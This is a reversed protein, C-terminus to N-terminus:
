NKILLIFLLILFFYSVGVPPLPPPQLYRITINQTYTPAPGPDPRVIIEPDPDLFFGRNDTRYRSVYNTTSSTDAATSGGSAYHNFDSREIVNNRNLDMHDFVTNAGAGYSADSEYSADTTFDAGGHSVTSFNDKIIRSSSSTVGGSPGSRTWQSFENQDIKGDGDADVKSFVARAADFSM